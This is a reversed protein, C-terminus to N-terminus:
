ILHLDTYRTLLEDRHNKLSSARNQFYVHQHFQLMGQLLNNVYLPQWGSARESKSLSPCAAAPGEDMVVGSTGLDEVGLDACGLVAIESNKVEGGTLFSSLVVM